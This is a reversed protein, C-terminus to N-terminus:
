RGWGMLEGLAAAAIPTDLEPTNWVSGHLGESRRAVWRHMMRKTDWSSVFVSLIHDLGSTSATYKVFMATRDSTQKTQYGLDAMEHVYPAFADLGLAYFLPIDM